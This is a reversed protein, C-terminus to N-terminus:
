INDNGKSQKINIISYEAAKTCLSETRTDTICKLQKGHYVSLPGLFLIELIWIINRTERLWAM